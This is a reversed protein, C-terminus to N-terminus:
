LLRWDPPYLDPNPRDVNQYYRSPAYVVQGEKKGLWAGWWGFTSNALIHHKCMSMLRLDEHSDAPGNHDVYTIASGSGLLERAWAVDDSFVFYVPNSVHGRIAGMADDYYRRHLVGLAAAVTNANDGHRVHVGVANTGGIRQALDANQATPARQLTLEARLRGEIDSFYRESQWYGRVSITGSFSRERVRSDFRFRQELPEIIEHRLFYPKGLDLLRRVSQGAKRRWRRLPIGRAAAEIAGELIEGVINFHSLGCVRVGLVPDAKKPHGYGSADLYLRAANGHALRRGLAYQFLQNGLGGMLRVVVVAGSAPDRSIM